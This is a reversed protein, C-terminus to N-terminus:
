PIYSLFLVNRPETSKIAVAVTGGKPLSAAGSSTVTQGPESLSTVRGSEFFQLETGGLRVVKMRDTVVFPSFNSGIEGIGIKRVESKVGDLAFVSAGDSFGAFKGLSLDLVSARSGISSFNFNGLLGLTDPLLDTSDYVAAVRKGTSTKVWMAGPPFMSPSQALSDITVDTDSTAVGSKIDVRKTPGTSFAMFRTPSIWAAAQLFPGTFLVTSTANPPVIDERLEVGLGGNSLTVVRSATENFFLQSTTAPLTTATGDAVKILVRGPTIGSWGLGMWDRTGSISYPAVPVVATVQSATTATLGLVRVDCAAACNYGWMLQYGFTSPSLAVGMTPLFNQMNSFVTSATTATVLQLDFPSASTTRALFRDTTQFYSGPFAPVSTTTGTNLDVRVVANQPAGAYFMMSAEDTSILPGSTVTAAPISHIQGTASNVAIVGQGSVPVFAIWKGNKSLHSRSISGIAFLKREFTKTDVFYYESAYDTDVSVQLVAVDSESTAVWSASVLRSAWAFAKYISLTKLPLTTTQGTRVTALGLSQKPYGALEAIAEYEGPPLTLSFGGNDGTMVSIDAVSIKIDKPSTGNFLAVTGELKGTISLDNGLTLPMAENKGRVLKVMASAMQAIAGSAKAVLAYDGAPVDSFAYSGAADTFAVRDSGSLYVTAGIAPGAGSMVKGTLSGVASFVLDPATVATSGDSETGFSLRREKTDPGEVALQYVGRPLKDFTYTGGAGTEIRKGVPGLLTVPLGKADSGDSFAVKGSIQGSGGGGCAALCFMALCVAGRVGNSM